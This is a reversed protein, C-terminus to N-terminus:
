PLYPGGPDNVTRPDGWSGLGRRSARNARPYVTLYTTGDTREGCSVDLDPDDALRSTLRRLQRVQRGDSTDAAVAVVGDREIRTRTLREVKDLSERPSITIATGMDVISIQLCV